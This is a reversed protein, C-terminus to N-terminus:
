AKAVLDLIEDESLDDIKYGQAELWKEGIKEDQCEKALNHLAKVMRKRKNQELMKQYEEFDKINIVAMQPKGNKLLVIQQGRATDKAIKVLQSRAETINVYRTMTILLIRYM